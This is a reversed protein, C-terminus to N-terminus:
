MLLIVANDIFSVCVHTNLQTKQSNLAFDMLHSLRTFVDLICDDFQARQSATECLTNTSLLTLVSGSGEKRTFYLFMLTLMLLLGSHIRHAQCSVLRVSLIM